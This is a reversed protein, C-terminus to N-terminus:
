FHFRAIMQLRRMAGVSTVRGYTRSNVTTDIATYQPTNFVNNAQVRLELGRVDGLRFNKSMAMNFTYTWPGEITNRGADGFQGFPPVVFAATNFWEAVSPNAIVIPLGTVDARLTGNTGRAVDAVNGLVRATFPLGSAIAVNGSWQWDGFVRALAGNDSALWRKNQGFPLEFVYDVSLRHRQDFSSLGREAALDQDNQAVVTTGGGISSANDISKSFTYTGGVSLGSSMRKRLSISGAHMISVGQSSEWLFPEVGTILLGDPGRNPARLMDLATGKSGTYGVNLFLTPRLERQVNLNWMQVYGLRFNRDVGYNNTTTNPTAATLATQLLLPSALTGLNTETVSFPPQYALNQVISGYAGTNYNIGYGGRVVTKSFPKWAFGVRPAFNKRQPDVLGSPFVGTYPGVGGPTVPAVATFGPAVDLNVIRNDRESYPSVYEYRLGVNLTLNSRVRWDDQVYLDWSNQSFHYEANGYQVSAQQPLGLLFDAFDFGSYLGTFTFSGSANKDTRPDLYIRRFDGGWRITHKNHRWIVNEGLSFTQSRRSLPAIDNLGSVSSFSLSPLGWDFPAHSVGAIGLNGTVNELLSYLNTTATRNESWTFRLNSTWHGRGFVWGVPVNWSTSASKGQVSPFPNDQQSSARQWHLGFNLNNRTGRGGGGRMGGFGGFPGGGAAGFNHMIRMNIADSDNTASTVYHFNQADGPLNPLPIFPLLGAAASNIMGAPIQSNAFAQRTFPNLITVPQGANPGNPVLTQSFDGSREALTPVTSFVDYPNEARNGNYMFFFFTKTGGDYIHPIKLPGGVAGGFRQQFYSPKPTPLGTLSYPKADLASDSASYFLSGHPQNINFRGRGGRGGIMLIPRGGGPGGDPGGRIGGPGGRGGPGGGAMMQRAEPGFQGQAAQDRIDQIRERMAPDNGGFLMDNTQGANGSIAVSETAADPNLAEAPLGAPAASNDASEDPMAGTDGAALALNQFGGRMAGAAQAAVAAQQRQERQESAQVRSALMMQLDSRSHCNAANITVEATSPAFGALEGRLVYRGNAPVSVSFVGNVDSSSAVKKGTLNNAATIAVGPLPVGSSLVRGNINCTQAVVASALSAAIVVSFISRSLSM